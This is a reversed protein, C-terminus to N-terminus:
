FSDNTRLILRIMHLTHCFKLTVVNGLVYKQGDRPTDILCANRSTCSIYTHIYAQVYLTGRFM